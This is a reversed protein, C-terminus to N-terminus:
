VYRAPESIAGRWAYLALLPEAFSQMAHPEARMCLLRALMRGRRLVAARGYRAGPCFWMFSSRRIRM